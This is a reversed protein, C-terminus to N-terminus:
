DRLISLTEYLYVGLIHIGEKRWIEQAFPMMWQYYVKAMKEPYMIFILFATISFILAALFILPESFYCITIFILSIVSYILTFLKIEPNRFIKM